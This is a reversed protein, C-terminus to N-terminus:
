FYRMSDRCLVSGVNSIKALHLVRAVYSGLLHGVEGRTEQLKPPLANSRNAFTIPEVGM